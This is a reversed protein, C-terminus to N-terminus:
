AVEEFVDMMKEIKGDGMKLSQLYEALSLNLPQEEVAETPAEDALVQDMIVEKELRANEVSLSVNRLEQITGTVVVKYYDKENFEISPLEAATCNILRLAPLDTTIRTVSAKGKEVELLVVGTNPTKVFEKNVPINTYHLKGISLGDHIDGAVCLDFPELLESVDIEERIFQNITCRFHSILIKTATTANDPRIPGDSLNCHSCLHLDFNDEEFHYMTPFPSYEVSILQDSGMDLFQFTDVGPAICEHNGSIVYVKINEEKLWRFFLMALKLEAPRPWSREFLDGAIILDAKHKKCLEILDRFLTLFRATQWEEPVEKRQWIHIDGAVIFSTM